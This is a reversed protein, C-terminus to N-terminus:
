RGLARTGPGQIGAGFLAAVEASGYVSEVGNAKSPSHCM